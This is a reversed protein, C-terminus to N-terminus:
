GRVYLAVFDAETLIGVLEDGDLVPLCGVKNDLMVQAADSLRTDVTTTLVEPSMADKVSFMRQLKHAGKAGYGLARLLANHFLDRQTVVGVIRGEDDVVPLHRIRGLSMVDAATALQDNPGLTTVPSTMVDKVLRDNDSKQV